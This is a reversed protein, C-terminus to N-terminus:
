VSKDTVQFFNSQRGSALMDAEIDGERTCHAIPCSLLRPLEDKLILKPLNVVSSSISKTQSFTVDAILFKVFSVAACFICLFTNFM